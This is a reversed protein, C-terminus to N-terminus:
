FSSTEDEMFQYLILEMIAITSIRSTI